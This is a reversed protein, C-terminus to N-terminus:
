ELAAYWGSRLVRKGDSVFYLYDHLGRWRYVLLVKGDSGRDKQPTGTWLPDSPHVEDDPAGMWRELEQRTWKGSGIAKGLAELSHHFAGGFKELEADRQNPSLAKQRQRLLRYRRALPEIESQSVWSPTAPVPPSVDAFATSAALSLAFFATRL